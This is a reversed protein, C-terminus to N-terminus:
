QAARAIQELHRLMQERHAIARASLRPSVASLMRDLSRPSELRPESEAVGAPGAPGAPKSRFPFSIVM